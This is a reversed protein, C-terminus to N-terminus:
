ARAGRGGLGAEGDDPDVDVGGADVPERAAVEDDGPTESRAKAGPM